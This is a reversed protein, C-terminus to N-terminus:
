KKAWSAYIAGVMAAVLLVSALEFPLLYASPSVLSKGLEVLKNEEGILEPAYVHFGSWQSLMVVVGFFLVLAAGAALSSNSNVQPGADRMIQRTLMVAFIFLIAIAGIYILVQAVAFFGADLLVYMIAVGFLTVVLWLAAHVLYRTRVVMVAALLTVLALISFITQTVM